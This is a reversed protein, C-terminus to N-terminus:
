ERLEPPFGLTEVGDGVLLAYAPQEYVIGGCKQCSAQLMRRNSGADTREIPGDEPAGGWVGDDVYHCRYDETTFDFDNVDSCHPCDDTPGAWEGAHYPASQTVTVPRPVGTAVRVIPGVRGDVDTKWRRHNLGRELTVIGGRPGEVAVTRPESHDGDVHAPEVVTLPESRGDWLVEDGAELAAPGGVIPYQDADTGVGDAQDTTSM